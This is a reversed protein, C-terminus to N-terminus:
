WGSRIDRLSLQVVPRCTAEAHHRKPLARPYDQEFSDANLSMGAWDVSNSELSM